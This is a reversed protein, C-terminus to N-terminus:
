HSPICKYTFIFRIQTSCSPLDMMSFSFSGMEPALLASSYSCTVSSSVCGMVASSFARIELSSSAIATSLAGSFSQSLDSGHITYKERKTWKFISNAQLHPLLIFQYLYPSSIKHNQPLHADSLSRYLVYLIISQVEISFTIASIM